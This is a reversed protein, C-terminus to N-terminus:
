RENQEIQDEAKRKSRNRSTKEPNLFQFNLLWDCLENTSQGKKIIEEDTYPFARYKSPHKSKSLHTHLNTKVYLYIIVGFSPNKRNIKEKPNLPQMLFERLIEEKSLNEENKTKEEIEEEEKTEETPKEKKTNKKTEEPDENQFIWESYSTFGKNRLLPYM